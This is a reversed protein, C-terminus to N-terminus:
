KAVLINLGIFAFLFVKERRSFYYRCGQSPSGSKKAPKTYILFGFRGNILFVFGWSIPTQGLLFIM